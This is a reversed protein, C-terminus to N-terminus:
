KFTKSSFQVILPLMFWWLLLSYVSNEILTHYPNITSM